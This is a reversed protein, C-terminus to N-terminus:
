ACASYRRFRSAALLVGAHEGPPYLRIDAFGKDATIFFRGEEQVAKWVSSDKWGGMGQEVVSRTDEFGAQRLLSVVVHPLDEDVKIRVLIAKL